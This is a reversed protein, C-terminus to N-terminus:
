ANRRISAFWIKPGGESFSVDVEARVGGRAARIEEVSWGDAFAARIERQSIRRPGQTGPEEDSFCLLLLRGGPATIRTLGEVYQTRAEDSLVHFLGSDIITAFREEWDRLKTADKVQFDVTLGREAANKRALRIARDAFDIGVVRHGRAAFFLAHEGTGCGADLVPSTVLGAAEAIVPQPKGIDWPPTGSYADEFAARDRTNSM